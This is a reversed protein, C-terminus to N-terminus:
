EGALTSVITTPAATALARCDPCGDALVQCLLEECSSLAVWISPSGNTEDEVVTSTLIGVVKIGAVSVLGLM